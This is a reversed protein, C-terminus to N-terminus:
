IAGQTGGAINTTVRHRDIWADLDATDYRVATGGLKIYPPGETRATKSRSQRLFSRSVQLRVAAEPERLLESM